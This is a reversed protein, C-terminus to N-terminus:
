SASVPEDMKRRHCCTPPPKNRHMCGHPQRAAHVRVMQMPLQNLNAPTAPGLRTWIVVLGAANDASTIETDVLLCLAAWNKEVASNGNAAATGQSASSRTVVAARQTSKRIPPWM